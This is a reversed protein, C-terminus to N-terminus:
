GVDLTNFFRSAVGTSPTILEILVPKVIVPVDIKATNSPYIKEGDGTKLSINRMIDTPRKM